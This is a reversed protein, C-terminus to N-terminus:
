DQLDKKIKEFEKKTIEGGAYRKKLIDMPTETASSETSKSKASRVLFYIVLAVLAIYILWMFAGGFGFWM